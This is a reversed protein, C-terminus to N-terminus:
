QIKAQVIDHLRILGVVRNEKLVPLVTIPGGGTEMIRLATEALENQQISMPNRTMVSGVELNLFDANQHLHRKVDGDSVLGVLTQSSNAVIVAGLNTEIMVELVEKMKQGEHVRPVTRTMLDQVRTLVKRGLSGKPHFRAFDRRQFGKLQMLTAALADGLVLTITTSAMPALGIPCGEEKLDYLIAADAEQALTSHPKGTIAIVKNGFLRLSPLLAVIEETDGSNSLAIFIDQERTMGLDGHLAEAPHLFLSATGTSALTASIKKAIIGSKGMGTVVVRGTSQMLLEVANVFSEQVVVAKLSEIASSEIEVLQAASELIMSRM